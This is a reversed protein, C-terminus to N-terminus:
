RAMRLIKNYSGWYIYTDDAVIPGTYYSVIARLRPEHGCLSLQVLEYDNAGNAVAIFAATDTVAIVEGPLGAVSGDPVWSWNVSSDAAADAGERIRGLRSQANDFFYLWGDRAMLGSPKELAVNVFTDFPSSGMYSVLTGGEGPGYLWPDSLWSIWETAEATDAVVNQPFPPGAFTAADGGTKPVISVVNTRDAVYVNKEDLALDVIPSETGLMTNLITGTGGDLGVRGLWYGLTPARYFYYVGSDDVAAGSVGGSADTVTAVNRTGGDWDRDKAQILIADAATLSSQTWYLQGAVSGIVSVFIAAADGVILTAPSCLGAECGGGVCSHGCSGCNAPDIEVNVESADPTCQVFRADSLPACLVDGGGDSSADRRGDPGADHLADTATGDPAAADNALQGDGLGLIQDCAVGWTGVALAAIGFTARRIADKRTM